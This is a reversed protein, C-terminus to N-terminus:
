EMVESSIEIIEKYFDHRDKDEKNLETHIKGDKIFVVRSAYSAALSDHTVMIITQELEKNFSELSKLVITSSKSDLAGTPEDAMIIAPKKIFARAISVRQQQGGSLEYPFQSLIPDIGLKQSIEEVRTKVEKNKLKQTTLPLAINDFSSLTDLLNYSQFIFGLKEKRFLNLDKNSLNNLNTDEIIIEGSSPKDITAISNLFTSKGSGSPGMIAVFEGNEVSFNINFLVQKEGYNKSLEKTELIKTM